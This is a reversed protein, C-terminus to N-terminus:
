AERETEKQRESETERARERARQREIQREREIGRDGEREREQGREDSIQNQVERSERLIIEVDLLIGCNHGKGTLRHSEARRRSQSSQGEILSFGRAGHNDRALPHGWVKLM